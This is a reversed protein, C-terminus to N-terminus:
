GPCREYRLRAAYRGAFWEANGTDTRLYSSDPPTQTNEHANAAKDGPITVAAEKGSPRSQSKAQMQRAARSNHKSKAGSRQKRMSSMDTNQASKGSKRNNTKV